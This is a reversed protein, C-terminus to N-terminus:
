ALARFAKRVGSVEYLTEGLKDFRNARHGLPRNIEPYRDYKDYVKDNYVSLVKKAKTRDRAPITALSASIVRYEVASEDNNGARMEERLLAPIGVWDESAM